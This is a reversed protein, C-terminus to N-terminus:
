APAVPSTGAHRAVWRMWVLWVVLVDLMILAQWLYLHAFEFVEKNWINLYYLSIVRLLNASQVAAIGIAMGVLKFWWPAPFALMGAILIIAAEVGNCGAEISVGMGTAQSQLVRGQSIVDADFATMVWASIHALGNTWPTIVAAQVPNLMEVGFLLAVATVFTLLFRTM